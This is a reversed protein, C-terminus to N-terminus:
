IGIIIKGLVQLVTVKFMKLHTETTHSGHILLVVFSTCLVENFYTLKRQRFFWYIAPIASALVLVPVLAYLIVDLGDESMDVIPKPM